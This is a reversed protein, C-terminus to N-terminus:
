RIVGGGVVAEGAYFVAAQGPTIDRQPAEFRVLVRSGGDLPRVEAPAPRATYRVKVDAHFLASPPRGSTWTVDAATLEPSLREADPGVRLSNT